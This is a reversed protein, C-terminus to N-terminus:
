RACSPGFRSFRTSRRAFSSFRPLPAGRLRESEEEVRAPEAVARGRLRGELFDVSRREIGSFPSRLFAFLDGRSGALWEYRLLSILARGIPTDGLSRGHEVAHPIALQVFAGELPVRWRDVSECVVGVREPATGGRLLSAIESALLEVTGRAGAGELFRVAGDLSPGTAADDSFLEREVHLLAPPPAGAAQRALEEIAGAALGALEEVTRELAAFAARGPEYPMSVTVETRAALAELLAWEAGTLDEFGYVFVPADSWADLESRLREVAHRRLGDRDRLGIRELESRYAHILRRSTAARSTSTSSAQNSRASRRSCPTRSGRWPRPARWITWRRLRSWVGSPSRADPCGLRRVPGDGGGEAVHRFLDDFTGVAGALLARSRRILDREVRDVDVRNPVVLWPDDSSCTSTASWFCRSRAPTLRGWSSRSVWRDM